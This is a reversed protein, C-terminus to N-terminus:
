RELTAQRAERLWLEVAVQQGVVAHGLLEKPVPRARPPVCITLGRRINDREYRSTRSWRILNHGGLGQAVVLLSSSDTCVFLSVHLKLIRVPIRSDYDEIDDETGGKSHRSLFDTM